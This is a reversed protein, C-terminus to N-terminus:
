TRRGRVVSRANAIVMSVLEHMHWGMGPAGEISQDIPSSEIGGRDSMMGHNVADSVCFMEGQTLVRHEPHRFADSIVTMGYIVGLQGTLLLEHKSVPDILNAFSTEQCIDAWIDNAVLWWAVPLNWRAVQNNLNMLGGATMTGFFSVPDNEVGVTLNALNRWARDEAVGIGETAEVFKEELVDGTAVAIDKREIFPRTQIYFEPPTYFNDRILQTHCKSATTHIAATGNKMRMHVRPTQGQSLTQKALLRRAFNERNAAQYLEDAMVEGLQMRTTPDTQAMLLVERRAAIHQERQAAESESVAGTNAVEQAFAAIQQLLDRKSSANLEGNAGVFREGTGRRLSTAAIVPTSFRVGQILQKKM